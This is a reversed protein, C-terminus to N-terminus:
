KKSRAEKIADVLEKLGKDYKVSRFQPKMMLMDETIEKPSIKKKENNVIYEYCKSKRSYEIYELEPVEEKVGITSLNKNGVVIRFGIKHMEINYNEPKVIHKYLSMSIKEPKSKALNLSEKTNRFRSELVDIKEYTDAMLDLIMATNKGESSAKDYFEKENSLKIKEKTLEAEVKALEIQLEKNSTTSTYQRLVARRVYERMYLHVIKYPFTTKRDCSRDRQKSSCRVVPSHDNSKQISMGKGCVGCQMLGSLPWNRDPKVNEYLRSKHIAQADYFTQDDVAAEYIKNGRWYGRVIDAQIWRMITSPNIKQIAEDQYNERLRITIRQQGQGGIYWKFIDKVASHLHNLTGDPNLWFPKRIKPVVGKQADKERKIYSAKVKASRWESERWAQEMEVILRIRLPMDNVAEPPYLQNDRVTVLTIGSKWIRKVLTEANDINQRTLRSFHEILILTGSQIIGDEIAQMLRGLSGDELNKGSWGSMAEDVYSDIVVVDPNQKLWLKQSDTQRDISSNNSQRESSFRQYTVANRKQKADSM